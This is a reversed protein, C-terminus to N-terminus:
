EETDTDSDTDSGFLEKDLIEKEAETLDAYEMPDIDVIEKPYELSEYYEKTYICDEIEMDEPISVYHEEEVFFEGSEIGFPM